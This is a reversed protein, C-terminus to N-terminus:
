GFIEIHHAPLVETWGFVMWRIDLEVASHSLCVELIASGNETECDYQVGATQAIHRTRVQAPVGRVTFLCGPQMRLLEGERPSIRVQDTRWWGAVLGLCAQWMRRLPQNRSPM